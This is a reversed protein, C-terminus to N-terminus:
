YEVKKKEFLQAIIEPKVTSKVDFPDGQIKEKSKLIETHNLLSNPGLLFAKNKVGEPTPLRTSHWSCHTLAHTCVVHNRDFFRQASWFHVLNFCM